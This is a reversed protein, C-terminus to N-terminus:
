DLKYINYVWMIDSFDVYLQRQGDNSNLTVFRVFCKLGDENVCHFQITEDGDVDTKADYYKIIDYVQERKSFIKIRDNDIDITILVIAKESQTWKGWKGNHKDKFKLSYSTSKFKAVQGVSSLALVIFFLAFFLRRYRM